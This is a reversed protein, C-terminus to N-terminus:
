LKILKQTTKTNPTVLIITYTGSRFESMNLEFNYLGSAM